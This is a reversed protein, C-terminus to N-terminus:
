ERCPDETHPLVEDDDLLPGIFWVAINFPKPLEDVKRYLALKDPGHYVVQGGLVEQYRTTKPNDILVWENPYKKEIEAMTMYSEGM